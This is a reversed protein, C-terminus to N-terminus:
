RRSHIREAQVVQIIAIQNGAVIALLEKMREEQVFMEAAFFAVAVAIFSLLLENEFQNKPARAGCDTGTPANNPTPRNIHLKRRQANKDPANRQRRATKGRPSRILVVSFRKARLKM